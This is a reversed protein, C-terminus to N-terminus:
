NDHNRSSTTGPADPSANYAVTGTSGLRSRRAPTSLRVNEGRCCLYLWEKLVDVGLAPKDSVGATAVIVARSLRCSLHEAADRRRGGARMARAPMLPWPLLHTPQSSLSM